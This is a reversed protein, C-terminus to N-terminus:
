ANERERRKCKDKPNRRHTLARKARFETQERINLTKNCDERNNRSNFSFRKNKTNSEKFSNRFWPRFSHTEKHKTKIIGADPGTPNVVTKIFKRIPSGSGGEKQYRIHRM